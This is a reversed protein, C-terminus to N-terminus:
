VPNIVFQCTVNYKKNNGPEAELVSKEIKYRGKPLTGHMISWDVEWDVTTGAGLLLGVMHFAYNKDDKIPYEQWSEEQWVYLKYDEGFILDKNSSNVLSLTGGDANLKSFTLSVEIGNELEQLQQEMLEQQKKLADIQEILSTNIENLAANTDAPHFLLDMYLMLNTSSDDVCRYIKGDIQVADKYPTVRQLVNGDTDCIDMYYSYGIRESFSDDDVFYLKEYLALLDPYGTNSDLMSYSKQEGTNGDRIQFEFIEESPISAVAKEMTASRLRTQFSYTAEGQYGEKNWVAKIEYIYSDDDQVAIWNPEAFEVTVSYQLGTENGEAFWMKNSTWYNTVEISDPMVSFDLEVPHLEQNQEVFIYAGLDDYNTELPHAGCANTSTATGDGNMVHWEWNSSVVDVNKDEFVMRMAPPATLIEEKIIDTSNELFDEPEGANEENSSEQMYTEEESETSPPVEANERPNTLFCVAVIMCVVVSAAIMWFTPKKYNLVSRIREKVGVEGFAVPCAAIMHRPVSCCLLAKSYERKEAIEMNKVVQEDCALEIDKCLLMYAVWIIPNFWYISLLLFGFPKWLHDGRKLHTREHALVYNLHKEDLRSPVYIRPRIIGLIFPSDINDCIRIRNPPYESNGPMSTSVKRRLIWYSVVSYGLMIIMGALWIIGMAQMWNKGQDVSVTVGEYYNDGLYENIPVDIISVGTDVQFTHGTIVEDPVTETSPILSFASEMSFPCILRVGVMIWLICSFMKPVRQLFKQLIFRLLIVGLIMWGAAISMNLLKLFVTAM